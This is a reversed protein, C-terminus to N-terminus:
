AAPEFLRVVTVDEAALKALLHQRQVRAQEVAREKVHGYGRIQEPLEAIALATQYNSNTLRELLSVVSQEYEEILRHELKREESRGFPDLWSGRLFRLGALVKFAKLMWPGFSRKRPEGTSKDTQSLWSPALHFQLRFDGQFQAQLSDTFAKDSYLRAVEYEDKYALLKFYYRAVAQSLLKQPDSDRASVRQVLQRYRDAYAANQYATLRA